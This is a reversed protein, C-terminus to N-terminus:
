ALPEARTLSDMREKHRAVSAHVSARGREEMKYGVIPM